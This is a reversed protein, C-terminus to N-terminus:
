KILSDLESLKGDFQVLAQHVIETVPLQGWSEVQFIFEKDSYEVKIIDDNIHDVADVLNNELILSEDIEGKKNFIQSPYKSKFTEIAKSKNNIKLSPSYNYWVHGPNWKAHDKGKGLTAVAVVELEQDKLLKALIMKPYVPKIKPDASKLDSAYVTKPGKEKLTLQVTCKAKRDDIDQQSAPLEYSELDTTLPLLGLRSAVLEDFIASSNKRIEVEEVAMVPVESLMLRRLANAYGPTADKVLFTMRTKDKSITKLEFKVM